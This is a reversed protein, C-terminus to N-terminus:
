QQHPPFRPVIIHGDEVSGYVIAGVPGHRWLYSAVYACTIADLKDELAKLQRGKVGTFSASLLSQPDLMAPDYASLGKLLQQYRELEAWCDEYSRKGKKKYHLITQLGFLSVHAPHPFVECILRAGLAPVIPAAEVFGYKDHLCNVLTEGRIGIAAFRNRNSPYPGAGYRRWDKGLLTECARKGEMNPVRLPADVAVVASGTADLWEGMWEVIEEDGRLDARAECLQGDVIVAGGSPNAASWALDIGICTVSMIREEGYARQTKVSKRCVIQCAEAAVTYHAGNLWMAILLVGM